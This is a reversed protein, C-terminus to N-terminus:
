KSIEEYKFTLPNIYYDEAEMNKEGLMGYIIEKYYDTEYTFRAKRIGEYYEKQSDTCLDFMRVSVIIILYYLLIIIPLIMEAELTLYGNVKCQM